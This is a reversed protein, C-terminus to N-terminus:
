RVWNISNDLLTQAIYDPSDNPIAPVDKSPSSPPPPPFYYGNWFALGIVVIKGDGDDYAVITDGGVLNEYPSGPPNIPASTALLTAGSAAQFSATDPDIYYIFTEGEIDTLVPHGSGLTILYGDDFGLEYSGGNNVYDLHTMAEWDAGLPDSYQAQYPHAPGQPGVRSIDDGVVILGGGGDFYDILTQATSVNTYGAPYSWALYIVVDYGTLHSSNLGGDPEPISNVSTYGLTTLYGEVTSKENEDNTGALVQTVVLINPEPEQIHYSFYMAWNPHEFDTGDGWATEQQLCPGGCVSDLDFADATNGHPTPDTKDVIKVYKICEELDFVNIHSQGTQNGPAIQNHAVGLYIWNTPTVSDASVYVEAQELPYVYGTGPSQEVVTLDTGVYDTFELVIWGGSTEDVYGLSFFSNDISGLADNPDSRGPQVPSGDKETGQSYDYVSAACGGETVQQVVVAHAAIYVDTVCPTVGTVGNAEMVGTPKGKNNLKMHYGDIDALPIVYTVMTDPVGSADDDDYPFQGPATTLPVGDQGINPDTKGVYLHTGIIVWDPDTIEYTVYLNVEDNWVKVDGVDMDQGAYLTQVQPDSETHAGVTVAMPITLAILLLGTLISFLIKRM